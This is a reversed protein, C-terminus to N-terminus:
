QLDIISCLVIRVLSGWDVESLALVSHILIIASFAVSGGNNLVSIIRRQKLTKKEKIIIMVLYFTTWTWRLCNRARANTSCFFLPFCTKFETSLAMQSMSSRAHYHILLFAKAHFHRCNFSFSFAETVYADVLSPWITSRLQVSASRRGVSQQAFGFWFAM